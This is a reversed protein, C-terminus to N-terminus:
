RTPELNLTRERGADFLGLVRAADREQLAEWWGPGPRGTRAAPEPASRAPPRTPARGARIGAAAPLLAAGLLAAGRPSHSERCAQPLKDPAPRWLVTGGTPGLVLDSRLRGTSACRSGTASRASASSSSCCTRAGERITSTSSGPKTTSAAIAGGRRSRVGRLGILSRPAASAVGARPSGKADRFQVARWLVLIPRTGALGPPQATCIPPPSSRQGSPASPWCSASFSTIRTACAPAGGASRRRSDSGLRMMEVRATSACRGRRPAGSASRPSASRAAACSRPTGPREALERVGARIQDTHGRDSILVGDRDPRVIDRAGGRDAALVPTGAALAEVMTIGFDEEGVHIFGAPAPSCARWSRGRSGASSSSTPRCGDRAARGRAAGRRGDDAAPRAARPVGRGGRAPAQLRGAPPGLPLAEPRAPRRAPLRRRGGATSSWAERGYFRAIREAVATPSPWTSTRAARLRAPGLACGGACPAAAGRGQGRQGPRAGGGADLRLAHAHPLLLRAPRRAVHKVGAACAHSSSVVLEYGSLDLPEFYRPMYPLLWRWRGPDHGRQRVGPLRGLRSEKVIAAALATPFCSARPTSPSPHGPRARVADLMAAVTREAGHFGQFWDHVIASRMALPEPPPRPRRSAPPGRPTSM